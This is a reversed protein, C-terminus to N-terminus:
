NGGVRVLGRIVGSVTCSDTAAGTVVSFRIEDAVTLKRMAKVDIPVTVAAGNGDAAQIGWSVGMTWMVDEDAYEAVVDPARVPDDADTKYIMMFATGPTVVGANPVVSIWGRVRLLTAREFGAVSSWDAPEVIGAEIAPSDDVPAQNLLTVTWLQNKPGRPKGRARSAV